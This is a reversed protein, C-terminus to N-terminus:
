DDVLISTKDDSKRDRKLGFPKRELSLEAPFCTQNM